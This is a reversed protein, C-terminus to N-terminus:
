GRRRVRAGAGSSGDHGDSGSSGSPGSYGSEGITPAFEVLAFAAPQWVALGFRGEALLTLRDVGNM